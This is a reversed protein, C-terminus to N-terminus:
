KKDRTSICYQVYEGTTEQKGVVLLARKQKMILIESYPKQNVSDRKPTMIKTLTAHSLIETLRFVEWTSEYTTSAQGSTENISRGKVYIFANLSQNWVRKDPNASIWRAYFDKIIKKRAIKDEKSDGNPIEMGPIIKTADPLQRKKQSLQVRRHKKNSAM